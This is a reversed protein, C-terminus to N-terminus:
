YSHRKQTILSVSEPGETGAKYFELLSGRRICEACDRIIPTLFSWCLEESDQRLFLMKEGNMCDLLVKEYADLANGPDKEYSFEMNMSKLCVAPGPNKAQFSLSIKEYPQITFKLRNASIGDQLIHRFIFHPVDKFQITIATHKQSLRKGSVLYFPVDRWRWNDVFLKMLAFTPTLSDSAVGQEQRYGPVPQGDIEGATYQGLVIHHRTEMTEFPRLSRILKAKEDRVAEPDFHAPPEMAVLALLQMMHNQFMDRIIGAKEYYGTRHGVGLKEAACIDVHDIYQRNWVPEFIANAFRFVLINQVTEKALYHDIRYIQQETFSKQLTRNLQVATDLNSGFPKEVVIRPWSSEAAQICSLGCSGLMNSITEYLLPPVALYFIRNKHTYYRRDLAECAEALEIFSDKRTYEVQKYYLRSFFASLTGQDHAGDGPLLSNMASRFAEDDMPTRGCGLIYFAEPLTSNKYLTFLAPILKRATLDGSAGFIIFGCPADPKRCSCPHEQMDATSNGTVHVTHKAHSSM